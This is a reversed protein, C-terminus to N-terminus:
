APLLKAIWILNYASAVLHAALQTRPRGRFIDQSLMRGDQDLRLDRCAAVFDSTDYGADAGLTM